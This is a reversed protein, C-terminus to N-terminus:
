DFPDDPLGSTHPVHPLKSVDVGREQLILIRTNGDMVVGRQNVILPHQAGPRLSAIIEDTSLARRSDVRSVAPDKVLASAALVYRSTRHRVRLRSLEQYRASSKILEDSHLLKLPGCWANHVLVSEGGAGVYFSHYEAVTLDYAPATHSTSWDLGEVTVEDGDATLLQDGPDLHQSEQWQQETANWYNHDETTIIEGASTKLALLQDTHPLTAIVERPGSEGTEPNTAYVYDGEKIESIPIRTGNAM